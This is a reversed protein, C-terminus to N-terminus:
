GFRIRAGEEAPRRRIAFGVGIMGLIMMLWTAPEPVTPLADDDAELTNPDSSLGMASFASKIPSSRVNSSAQRDAANLTPDSLGERGIFGALDPAIASSGFMNASMANVPRGSLEANREDFTGGVIAGDAISVQGFALDYTPALGSRSDVAPDSTVTVAAGAASSLLASSVALCITARKM